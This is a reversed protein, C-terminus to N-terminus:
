LRKARRCAAAQSTRAAPFRVVGTQPLGSHFFGCLFIQAAKKTIQRCPEYLLGREM